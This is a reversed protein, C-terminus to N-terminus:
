SRAPPITLPVSLLEVTVLQTNVALVVPLKPPPPIPFPKALGVTSFQVKVPLEAKKPPPISFKLLLGVITFQWNMSLMAVPLVNPPPPIMLPVLELGVTVLQVNLLLLALLPPATAVEM